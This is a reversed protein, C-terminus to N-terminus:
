EGAECILKAAKLVFARFEPELIELQDRLYGVDGNAFVLYGIWKQRLISYDVFRVEYDQEFPVNHHFELVETM